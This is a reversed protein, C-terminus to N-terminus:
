GCALTPLPHPTGIEVFSCVSHVVLKSYDRWTEVRIWSPLFVGPILIITLDDIFPIDVPYCPFITTPLISPAVGGVGEGKLCFFGFKYVNLSGLRPSLSCSYIACQDLCFQSHITNRILSDLRWFTFKVCNTSHVKNLRYLLFLKFQIIFQKM